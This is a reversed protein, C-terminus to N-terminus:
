RDNFQEFDCDASADPVLPSQPDAVTKLEHQKEACEPCAPVEQATERGKGGADQVADERNDFRSKRPRKLERRRTPYQKERTAIVINHKKTKPATVRQCFYCRFM